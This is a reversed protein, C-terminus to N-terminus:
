RQEHERTARHVQQLGGGGQRALGPKSARAAIFHGTLYCTFFNELREFRDLMRLFWRKWNEDCTNWRRALAVALVRPSHLIATEELVELGAERLCRALQRRSLTVGVPYPVLRTALLWSAPLRNRIWVMPNAPNDLTVVLHGGPRLVRALERLGAAIERPSSFHDLTSNSVIVDITADRLPLARVDARLAVLGLHSRGALGCVTASIDIGITCSGGLSALHRYLGEGVAEDYLDTKLIPGPTGPPLWRKLLALNVSDSHRRWLRLRAIDEEWRV